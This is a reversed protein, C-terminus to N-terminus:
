SVRGFSTGLFGGETGGGGATYMSVADEALGLGLELAGPAKPKMLPTPGRGPGLGRRELAKNQMSILKRNAMQMRETQQVGKRMMNAYRAGEAYNGALRQNRGYAGAVDGGTSLGKTQQALARYASENQKLFKDRELGYDRQIAGIQRSYALVNESTEINYRGLQANWVNNKGRWQTAQENSNRSFEANAAAHKRKEALFKSCM